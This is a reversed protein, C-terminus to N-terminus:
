RNLRHSDAAELFLVYLRQARPFQSVASLAAAVSEETGAGAGGSAAGSGTRGGARARGGGGGWAPGRLGGGGRGSASSSPLAGGGRGSGPGFGAATLPADRQLRAAGGRSPGPAGRGQLRQNLRHFRSINKRALTSLEEDLLTEGTAAAQWPPVRPATPSHPAAALPPRTGLRWCGGSSHLLGTLRAEPNARLCRVQLVAATLLEAFTGFNDPRLRRLLEGAGQQLALLVGSDDSAAPPNHTPAVPTLLAKRPLIRCCYAKTSLRCDRRKHHNWGM